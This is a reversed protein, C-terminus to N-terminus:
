VLDFKRRELIARLEGLHEVILDPRSVRLQELRNYGTLVGCSFVGGLRATEMDHQMDGVFMTEAAALRNDALVEAIKARKDWVALYAREMFQDFGNVGAQAAYYDPRITSLVFSRIARERCFLLFERAHPLEEVTRQARTFHGHFARELEAIPVGPLFRAYFDKFPLCFEARFRDMTWPPAAYKDFVHNTAELVAPLDDVLTGSWDFIINRIM